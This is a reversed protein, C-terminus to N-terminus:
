EDGRARSPRASGRWCRPSGLLRKLAELAEERLKEPESARARHPLGRDIVDGARHARETPEDLGLGVGALDVEGELEAVVEWGDAEHFVADKLHNEVEHAVGDVGEVADARDGEARTVDGVVDFELHLVVSRADVPVGLPHEQGKVGGLGRPRAKPEGDGLADRAVV